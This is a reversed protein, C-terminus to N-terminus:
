IYKVHQFTAVFPSSRKRSPPMPCGFLKSVVLTRVELFSHPVDRMWLTQESSVDQSGPIFAACGAGGRRCPRTPPFFLVKVTGVESCPFQLMHLEFTELCFMSHCSM